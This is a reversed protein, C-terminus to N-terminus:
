LIRIVKRIAEEVYDTDEYKKLGYNEKLYLTEDEDVWYVAKRKTVRNFCHIYRKNSEFISKLCWDGYWVPYESSDTSINTM